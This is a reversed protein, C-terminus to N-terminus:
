KTETKKAAAKKVERKAATKKVEAKRTKTEESQKEEKKSKGKEQEYGVFEIIATPAADGSRFGTKLIRTYGGPRDKFEVALKEIVKGAVNESLFKLLQRRAALNGKKGTTIMKEVIPRLEKAKAVTTEIREHLILSTALNKLMAKRHAAERGLKRGKYQHRHM